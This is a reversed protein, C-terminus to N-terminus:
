MDYLPRFGAEEAKDLIIRAALRETRAADLFAKYREGYAMVAAREAEDMRQWVSETRSYPQQM